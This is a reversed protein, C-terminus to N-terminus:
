QLLTYVTEAEYLAQGRYRIVVTLQRSNGTACFATNVCFSTTAQYTRSGITLDVAATSGSLPLTTPNILRYDDLVRQAAAVAGSRIENRTNLKLHSVFASAMSASIVSFILTTAMVEILTFGKNQFLLNM